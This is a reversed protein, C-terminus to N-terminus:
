SIYVSTGKPSPCLWWMQPHQTNIKYSDQDPQKPWSCVAAQKSATQDPLFAKPLVHKQLQPINNAPSTYVACPSKAPFKSCCHSLLPSCTSSYFLFVTGLCLFRCLSSQHTSSYTSVQESITVSLKPLTFGWVSLQHIGELNNINIEQFYRKNETPTPLNHSRCFTEYGSHGDIEGPLSCSHWGRLITAAAAQSFDNGAKLWSSFATMSVM